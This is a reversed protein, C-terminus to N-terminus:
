CLNVSRLITKTGHAVRGAIQNGRPKGVRLFDVANQAAGIFFTASFRRPVRNPWRGVTILGHCLSGRGARREEILGLGDFALGDAAGDVRRGSLLRLSQQSRQPQAHQIDFDGGPLGRRQALDSRASSKMANLWCNACRVEAPMGISCPKRNIAWSM